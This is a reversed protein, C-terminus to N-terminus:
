APQVCAGSNRHFPQDAGGGERGACLTSKSVDAFQMVAMPSSRLYVRTALLLKSSAGRTTCTIGTAQPVRYWGSPVRDQLRWINCAVVALLQARCVVSLFEQQCYQQDRNNPSMQVALDAGVCEWGLQVVRLETAHCACCLSICCEVRLGIQRIVAHQITHEKL